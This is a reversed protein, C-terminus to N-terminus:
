KKVSHEACRSFRERSSDETFFAVEVECTCDKAQAVYPHGTKRNAKKRAEVILAGIPDNM